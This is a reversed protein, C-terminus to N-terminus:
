WNKLAYKVAQDLTMTQAQAAVKEFQEEGLQARAVELHRALWASQNAPLSLGLKALFLQSTTLLYVAREAEGNAAAVVGFGALARLVGSKKGLRQSQVLAERFYNAANEHDGALQLARGVNFYLVSINTIDRLEQVMSLSQKYLDVARFYQQDAESIEGLARLAENQLMRDGLVQSLELCQDLLRQAESLNKLYLENEGINWLSFALIWKENTEKALRLSEKFFRAAAERDHARITLGMFGLTFASWWKNDLEQWISLSEALTMHASSHDSQAFQLLGLGMLVKAKAMTRLGPAQALAAETWIQGESWPGRFFWLWFAAGALRLVTEPQNSHLVYDLAARFNVREKEMVSFWFLQKKGRYNHEAEEAFNIFFDLHRNRVLREEGSEILKELAYERITELLRYRTEGEQEEVIVLSKDALNLLLNLVDQEEPQVVLCVETASEVTWGGAFVSLRSLLVREKESLLNYSWDITARLTQHRQLATRNGTRLLSFRDDLRAGIQETNLGKVRAAALEIALPIGDLRRCIQAIAFANAKTLKFTPRVLVARDLFVRVAESQNLNEIVLESDPPPITLTPVYYQHEGTLGLAERSTALIQLQPCVQLLTDAVQACAAVLHECNDFLLLLKKSRLHDTLTQILSRKPEERIGLATTIAQLILNPEPLVAFDILWVGEPFQEGIQKAAEMALRTKGTGGAGTLTVLRASRLLGKIEDIEHERGIFSTLQLPLNNPTIELSKLPPFDSPLDAIVLQYLHEPENLDKLRYKGLERLSVDQPLQREVMVRTENSVLVQGPYAVACIRAARHVDVGVYDQNILMPEGTHIGIRIQLRVGETWTEGALAQQAEVAASVADTARSFVAFFSDGHTSVEHGDWKAFADRLIRQHEELVRVYDEGLRQVLQTSGGIDSFLLHVTGSPLSPESAPSPDTIEFLSTFQNNLAEKTEARAFRVFDERQNVPIGLPGSLSEALQKSPRMEDGEIKRITIPACGVQRALEEQTLDLGRRRHRLWRGFSQAEDM